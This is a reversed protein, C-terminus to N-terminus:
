KVFFRSREKESMETIEEFTYGEVYLHTCEWCLVSKTSVDVREVTSKCLKCKMKKYGKTQKKKM